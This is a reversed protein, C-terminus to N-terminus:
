NLRNVDIYLDVISTLNAESCDEDDKCFELNCVEKCESTTCNQSDFCNNCEVTSYSTNEDYKCDTNESDNPQTTQYFHEM